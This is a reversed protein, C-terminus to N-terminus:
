VFLAARYGLFEIKRIGFIEAFNSRLLGLPPELRLHAPLDTFKSLYSARDRYRYLMSLTSKQAKNARSM